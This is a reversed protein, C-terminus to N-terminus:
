QTGNRFAEEIVRLTGNTMRYRKLAARPVWEASSVDDDPALTGGTVRCRYDILVYHYEPRGQADNLIREFVEVIELPKVRLGTEELVERRLGAELREGSELVGGPISWYGKLPARGRKVLLM